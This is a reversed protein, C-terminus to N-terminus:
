YGGHNSHLVQARSAAHAVSCAFPPIVYAYGKEENLSRIKDIVARHWEHTGHCMNLRAVNMGNVALSELVDASCSSPGITCIMKTRSSSRFGKCQVCTLRIGAFPAVPPTGNEKMDNHVAAELEVSSAAADLSITALYPNARRRSNRESLKSTSQVPEPVAVPV